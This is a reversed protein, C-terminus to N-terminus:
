EEEEETWNPLSIAVSSVAMDMAVIENYGNLTNERFYDKIEQLEAEELEELNIGFKMTSQRLLEPYNKPIEVKELIDDYEREEKVIDKIEKDSMGYDRLIKKINDYRATNGSSVVKMSKKAHFAKECEDM